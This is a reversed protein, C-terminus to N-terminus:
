KKKKEVPKKTQKKTTTKKKKQDEQQKKKLQEQRQKEVMEQEKRLEEKSYNLYETLNMFTYGLKKLLTVRNYFDGFENKDVPYVAIVNKNLETKQIILSFFHGVKDNENSSYANTIMTDNIVTINFKALEESVNKQLLNLAAGASSKTLLVKNVTSFDANFSKVADRIGKEDLGTNFDAEYNEKSGLTLNIVIDKKHKLLKHQIEIDDLNRPFMYSFENKTIILKDLEEGSFESIKDLIVAIIGGDRKVKDSHIIQITAAPLSKTSDPDTVYITIDKSIIEETVRSSLGASNLFTSIDLNIEASAVDKPILVTKTFWGTKSSSKKQQSSIETKIWDNRIGFTFLISDISTNLSTQPNKIGNAPSESSETYTLTYEVQKDDEKLLFTIYLIACIGILTFLLFYRNKTSKWFSRKNL